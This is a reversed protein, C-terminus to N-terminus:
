EGKAPGQLKAVANEFELRAASGEPLADRYQNLRTEAERMREVKDLSDLFERDEKLQQEYATRDVKCVIWKYEFPANADIQPTEDVHLVAAVKTGRPTDVVVEDGAKLELSKHAKYTYSANGLGVHVTTFNTQLLDLLKSNNMTNEPVVPQLTCRCNPHDGLKGFTGNLTVKNIFNHDLMRQAMVQPARLTKAMSVRILTDGRVQAVADGPMSGYLEKVEHELQLHEVDGMYQGDIFLKGKM